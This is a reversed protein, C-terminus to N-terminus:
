LLPEFGSKRVYNPLAFSALFVDENLVLFTNSPGISALKQAIMTKSPLGFKPNKSAFGLSMQGGTYTPVTIMVPSMVPFCQKLRSGALELEAPQVFPNGCQTVLIGDESMIRRLNEYFAVEFLPAAPGFPDTSDVVVVDYAPGHYGRVYEAADAIVLNMRPDDFAGNSISPLHQMSFRVVAEDIEVMDIHELDKHRCAERIVGGDGAGVVLMRKPAGHCILPIHTIFEHYFAEDSTTIQTVGDLMLMTGFFNNKFLFLEQEDSKDHLLTEEIRYATRYDQHLTEVAHGDMFEVAGTAKCAAEMIKDSKLLRAVILTGCLSAALKLAHAIAL